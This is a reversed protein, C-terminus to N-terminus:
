SSARLFASVAAALERPAEIPLMHGANRLLQIQAGPIKTALLQANGPPVVNDADGAIVLVPSKTIQGVRAAADHAAGAAVQASYAAPPVPGTLRYRILEGVEDPHAEPWGPATAVAIGRKIVDLPEGSRDMMVSLAAPPIPIVGPGGHTTSALILKDVRDPAALALEQAIYGGLSHGLVHARGIGLGDLLGLADAAMQATSFPGDPKDSGGAGRNDFTIVTHEGALLPAVRGWIWAGYGLGSILLLPPGSGAVEYALTIGNSRLTPM